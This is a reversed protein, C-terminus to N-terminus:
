LTYTPGSPSRGSALVREKPQLAQQVPSSTGNLSSSALLM